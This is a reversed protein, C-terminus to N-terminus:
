LDTNGRVWSCRKDYAAGNSYSVASVTKYRKSVQSDM